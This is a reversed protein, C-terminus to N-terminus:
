LENIFKNTISYHQHLHELSMKFQEYNDHNWINKNWEGAIHSQFMLRNTGHIKIDTEHIGDAGFIQNCPTWDLGLNHEYHIAVYKFLYKLQANSQPSCMWGPNRWGIPDVGVAKWENQMLLIRDTIQTADQLEAFEM